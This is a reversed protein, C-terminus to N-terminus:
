HTLTPHSNKGALARHSNMCVVGGGVITCVRIYTIITAAGISTLRMGHMAGALIADVVTLRNLTKQEGFVWCLHKVDYDGYCNLVRVFTQKDYHVHM